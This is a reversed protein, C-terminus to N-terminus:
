EESEGDLERGADLAKRYLSADMRFDSDTLDDLAARYEDFSFAGDDLAELLVFITGGVAVGLSEATTRAAHDDTLCRADRAGALAISEPEGRGLDAATRVDEAETAVPGELTTLDLFRDTEEDVALADRYGEERGRVGVEEYVAEPVLTEDFLAELLDLHGIRALYILPTADAVVTTM